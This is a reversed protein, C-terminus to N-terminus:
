ASGAASRLRSIVSDGVGSGASASRSSRSFCRRAAAAGVASVAFVDSSRVPARGGVRRRPAGRDRSMTPLRVAVANAAPVIERSMFSRAHDVFAFTAAVFGVGAVIMTRWMSYTSWNPLGTAGGAESAPTAVSAGTSLAGAVVTPASEDGPDTAGGAGAGARPSPLPLPAGPGAGTGSAGTGSGVGDVPAGGDSVAAGPGCALAGAGVGVAGGGGGGM